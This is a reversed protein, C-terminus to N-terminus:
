RSAQSYNNARSASIRIASFDYIEVPPMRKEHGLEHKLHPPPSGTLVSNALCEMSRGSVAQLFTQRISM